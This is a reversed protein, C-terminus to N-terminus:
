PKYKFIESKGIEPSQSWHVVELQFEQEGFQEIAAQQAKAFQTKEESNEFMHTENDFMGGDWYLSVASEILHLTIEFQM